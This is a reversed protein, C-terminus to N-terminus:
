PASHPSLLPYASSGIAALRFLSFLLCSEYRKVPKASDVQYRYILPSRLGETVEPIAIAAIAERLNLGIM